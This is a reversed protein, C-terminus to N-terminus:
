QRSCDSPNKPVLLAFAEKLGEIVDTPIVCYEGYKKGLLEASKGLLYSAVVGSLLSELGQACLGSALGSLADGSGAKAQASCGADSLYVREGDTLVTTAGKLLVCVNYDAAFKKCIAIPSHLIEEVGLGLLRSFEKAHPTILVNCKKQSFLREMEKKGYKALSNLGDADLILKGEYRELLFKVGLYTAKKTGMGMGYAVADFRLLEKKHYARLLLEPSKLYYYKLLSKRVFLTSYGVGSRLSALASIYPAGTYARSGGVIATKGYTGKHSDQKRKPLLSLVLEDSARVVNEEKEIDM